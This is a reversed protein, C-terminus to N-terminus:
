AKPKRPGVSGSHQRRMELIHPQSRELSAVLKKINYIGRRSADCAQMWQALVPREIALGHNDVVQMIAM